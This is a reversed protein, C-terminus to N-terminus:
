GQISAHDGLVSAAMWLDRNEIKGILKLIEGANTISTPALRPSHIPARESSTDMGSIQTKSGFESAMFIQWCRILRRDPTLYKSM